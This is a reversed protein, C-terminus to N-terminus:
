GKRIVSGRGPAWAPMRDARVLPLLGPGNSIITAWEPGADVCEPVLGDPCELVQLEEGFAFYRRIRFPRPM